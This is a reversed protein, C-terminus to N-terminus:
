VLKYHRKIVNHYYSGPSQHEKMAEFVHQPVGKYTYTRDEQQKNPRNRFSVHLHQTEPDYSMRSVHSDKPEHTLVNKM